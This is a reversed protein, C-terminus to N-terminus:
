NYQTEIIYQHFPNFFSIDGKPSNYFAEVVGKDIAM